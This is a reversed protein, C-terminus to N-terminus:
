SRLFKNKLKETKQNKPKINYKNMAADIGERVWCECVKCARDLIGPLAKQERTTFRDLVYLSYDKVVKRGMIGVRMRSFEESGLCDIISGLGKHGADSGKRRIRVDGFSFAIDDIILLIKDLDIRLWNVILRVSNGSLNMLTQPMALYCNGDGIIGEGTLAKFRRNLRLKISNLRAMEEVIMFGINHRTLRYQKGPNGLGVILKMNM